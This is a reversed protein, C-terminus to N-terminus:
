AEMNTQDAHRAVDLIRNVAGNIAAQIAGPDCAVKDGETEFVYLGDELYAVAQSGDRVRVEIYPAGHKTRRFGAFERGSLQARIAEALPMLLSLQRVVSTPDLRQQNTKM